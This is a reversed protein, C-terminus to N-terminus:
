PPQVHSSRVGVQLNKLFLAGSQWGNGKAVSSIATYADTCVPVFYADRAGLAGLSAVWEANPLAMARRTVESATGIM